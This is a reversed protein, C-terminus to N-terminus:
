AVAALRADLTVLPAALHRALWLYAADYSTLGHELALRLCPEAPVAHTTLGLREQQAFAALLRPRAEPFRRCKKLCTNALELEILAPAALSADGLRAAVAEAEPEGFLIAALASADVVIM